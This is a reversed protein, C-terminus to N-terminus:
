QVIVKSTFIHDGSQIKVLYIGSAAPAPYAASATTRYIETGSIDYLIVEDVSENGEIFFQGQDIPNPYIKPNLGLVEEVDVLQPVSLKRDWYMRYEGAELTFTQTEQSVDLSDASFFEYWMGDHQFDVTIEGQEVGFNGILLVNDEGNLHISKLTSAVNIVFDSTHMVEETERLHMMASFHLYLDARDQDLTYDWRVPKPSLRCDNSITGDPCYNISYDYALEGFQWIMKPGPLSYFFASAMAIRDAGVSLETVDYDGMSNGFASNKYQLREEDHSEMYGIAHADDWGKNQYSLHSFNSKNGSTYGMTGENFNYNANAWLMMGYDSLDKEEDNNAFHELIVYFDNDINWLEDAYAKLTEVRGIDYSAFEFNNESFTQTFGKSLDFRFGDIHYEEIWYQNITNVYDKTAQSEHNFDYGVNFPHKPEENFFPSESSPKNNNWYLQAYPNQSFAHNFVVDLIVAIGLEHARNVLAKFAEVDGYYKDLAMHYSPNYGWSDNGEFESVPMLEIANIGLRKLYPLTDMISKFSHDAVFDRALMEYINLRTQDVPQFDDDTWNFEAPKMEFYTVRSNAKAPFVPLDPYVEESIYEDHFDDLIVTSYPDAIVIEGDVIYQYSYAGNENLGTIDIWYYDGNESRNMYGEVSATWDNFDGVVYVYSKLPAYLKLRVSTPSIRNLGYPLNDPDNLVPVEGPNVVFQVSDTIIEGDYEAIYKLTHNGEELDNMTFDIVDTIDDFVISSNDFVTVSAEQTFSIKVDLDEDLDLIFNSGSPSIFTGIFSESVQYIPYFIDSFTSTKGEKSGDVNRFVMGLETVVESGTLEYYDTINFSISHINNGENTMKVNADDTGWNGQVNSWNGPGGAETIIGTHIYVQDVDILGGSGQTADYYITIDDAVTPFTPEVTVIQSFAEIFLTAFFFTFLIRM